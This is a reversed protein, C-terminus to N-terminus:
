LKYFFVGLDFLIDLAFSNDQYWVIMGLISANHINSVSTYYPHM